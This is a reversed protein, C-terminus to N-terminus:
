SYEAGDTEVDLVIRHMRSDDEYFEADVVVIYGASELVPKVEQLMDFIGSGACWLGVMYRVATEAETGEAYLMGSQGLLQYTVYRAANGRYPPHCVPYPLSALADAISM